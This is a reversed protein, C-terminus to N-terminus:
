DSTAGRYLADRIDPVAEDGLRKIQARADAPAIGAVHV